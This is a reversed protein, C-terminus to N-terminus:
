VCEGQSIINGGTTPVGIYHACRAPYAGFGRRHHVRGRHYVRNHVGVWAALSFDASSYSGGSVILLPAGYLRIPPNEAGVFTPM